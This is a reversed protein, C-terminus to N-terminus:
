LTMRKLLAFIGHILHNYYVYIKQKMKKLVCADLKDEGNHSFLYMSCVYLVFFFVRLTM